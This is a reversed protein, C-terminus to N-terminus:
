VTLAKYTFYYRMKLYCKGIIQLNNTGFPLSLYNQNFDDYRSIDFSSDIYRKECNITIIEGNGLNKLFFESNAKSYNVIRINGADVKTIELVPKIELRGRNRITFTNVGDNQTFDFVNEIIPSYAYPSNTRMNLTVYGQKLGNHILDLGEVPIAYFIRDFNEDFGLQQYYEVDLWDCIEDILEDNWTEEFYFTLPITIPERKIESFYPKPNGRVSTEVISRSALLSEQFLGSQISVNVIGFDSSKRGNYTFYLSEKIM